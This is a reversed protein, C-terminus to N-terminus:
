LERVVRAPNGAVVVRAPVDRTVVAAAAVVAGDGITVGKLIMANAGVWVDDGIVVRDTPHTASRRLARDTHHFDSDFIQVGTGFLGDRGITIGPGESRVCVDNNLLTRDGIEVVSEPRGAEIYVSGTYFGPSREWGLIVAEGFAIRGPGLLVAPQHLDPMGELRLVDRAVM